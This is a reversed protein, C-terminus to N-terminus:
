DAGAALETLRESALLAVRAQLVHGRAGLVEALDEVMMILDDTAVPGDLAQLLAREEEDLERM